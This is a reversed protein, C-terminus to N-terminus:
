FPRHRPLPSSAAGLMRQLLRHRMEELEPRAEPVNALNTYEGPEASLDYLVEADPGYNIYKREESRLMAWIPRGPGAHMALVDRRVPGSGDGRLWPGVSRGQVADPAPTGSLECLTPLLDVAEVLEAPRTGGPLGGPWHMIVPLRMVEEYFSAQKAVMRHDGDMDGHDSMFLLLTDELEGRAELGELLRGVQSDLTTCMAYFYRRRERWQEPSIERRGKLMSRLPEPKDEEEGERWHHEPVDAERYSEFVDSPPNLPPHPAYIGVHIFSPRGLRLFHLAQSVAFGGHSAEAPADVTWQMFPGDGRIRERPRPVRMREAHEPHEDRLWRTYADEYCGPEESLAMYDFGYRGRPAPDLDMEDHPELHLKGVQATAYGAGGFVEACTPGRDPPLAPGNCLLGTRCPYQGTMFSARSPMCVPNQGYCHELAAGGAALRDLNPTHVAPNGNAGVCDYRMHDTTIWIIHRPREM